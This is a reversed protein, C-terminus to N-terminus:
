LVILLPNSLVCERSERQTTERDTICLYRCLHFCTWVRTCTSLIILCFLLLGNCNFDNLPLFFYDSLGLHANARTLVLSLSYSLQEMKSYFHIRIFYSMKIPCCLYACCFAAGNRNYYCVVLRLLVVLFLTVM